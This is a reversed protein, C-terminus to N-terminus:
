LSSQINILPFDSKIGRLIERQTANNLYYSSRKAFSHFDQQVNSKVESRSELAKELRKFVETGSSAATLCAYLAVIFFFLGKM